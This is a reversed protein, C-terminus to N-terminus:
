LPFGLINKKGREGRPWIESLGITPSWWGLQKAFKFLFFKALIPLNKIKFKIISINYHDCFVCIM